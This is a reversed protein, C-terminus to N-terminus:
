NLTLLPKISLIEPEVADDGNANILVQHGKHNQNPFMYCGDPALSIEGRFSMQSLYHCLITPHAWPLNYKKSKLYSSISAANPCDGHKSLQEIAKYIMEEYPPHDPTPYKFFIEHLHSDMTAITDMSLPEETISSAANVIADKLWKMPKSHRRGSGEETTSSRDSGEGRVSM